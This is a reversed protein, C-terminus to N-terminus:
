LWQVFGITCHSFHCNNWYDSLLCLTVVAFPAGFELCVIELCVEHLLFLVIEVANWIIKKHGDMREPSAALELSLQSNAHCFPNGPLALCRPLTQRRRSDTGNSAYGSEAGVTRHSLGPITDALCCINLLYINVPHTFTIDSSKTHLNKYNGTFLLSSSALVTVYCLHM